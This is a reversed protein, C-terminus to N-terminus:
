CNAGMKLGVTLQSEPAEEKGEENYQRQIKFVVTM